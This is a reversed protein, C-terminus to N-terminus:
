IISPKKYVHM